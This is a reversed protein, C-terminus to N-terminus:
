REAVLAVVLRLILKLQLGQLHGMLRLMEPTNAMEPSVALQAAQPLSAVHAIGMLDHPGSRLAVCLRFLLPLSPLM